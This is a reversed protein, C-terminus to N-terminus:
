EPVSQPIQTQHTEQWEVVDDRAIAVGEIHRKPSGANRCMESYLHLLDPLLADQARFVVVPEDDAISGRELTIHGYKRDIAMARRLNSLPYRREVVPVRREARAVVDSANVDLAECLDFLHRLTIDRHGNEIRSLAVVSIGAQAAVELQRRHQAKRTEGLVLGVERALAHVPAEHGASSGTM